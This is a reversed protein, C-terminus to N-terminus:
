VVDPIRFTKIKHTKGRVLAVESKACGYLQAVIKQVAATARGEQPPEIVYVHLTGARVMHRQQKANPHVIVQIIMLIFTM